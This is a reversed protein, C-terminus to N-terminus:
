SRMSKLKAIAGLVNKGTAKREGAISQALDGVGGQGAPTPPAAPKSLSIGAQPAPVAPTPVAGEASGRQAEIRAVSTALAQIERQITAVADELGDLVVPQPAPGADLQRLASRVQTVADALDERAEERTWTSGHDTERGAIADELRQVARSVNEIRDSLHAEVSTTAAHVARELNAVDLDLKSQGQAIEHVQEHVEALPKGYLKTARTLNNLKEDQRQLAVLIHGADGIQDANAPGLTMLSQELQDLRWANEAARRDGASRLSGLTAAVMGAVLVAFPTLGADRLPTMLPEVKAGLLVSVGTLAAGVVVLSWGLITLAARKPSESADVADASAVEDVLEEEGDWDPEADAMEAAEARRFFENAALPHDDDSPMNRPRNM